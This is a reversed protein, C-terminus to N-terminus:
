FQKVYARMMIPINHINATSARKAKRVVLLYYVRIIANECDCVCWMSEKHVICSVKYALM